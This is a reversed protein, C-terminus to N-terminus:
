EGEMLPLQVFKVFRVDAYAAQYGDKYSIYHRTKIAIRTDKNDAKWKGPIAMKTGRQETLITYENCIEAKTGFIVQNAEICDTGEGEGDSRYRGHLEGNSRWLHLEEDQNFIRLRRIFRKEIRKDIRKDGQFSFDGDYKGILVENDLYAVVNSEEKIYDRIKAIDELILNTKTSSKVSMLELGNEISSM